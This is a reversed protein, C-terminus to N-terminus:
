AFRTPRYADLPRSPSNQLMLESILQATIPALLIGNRFHGTAFVLNEIEGRGLIPLHDTTDPRLGAWARRLRLNRIGPYLRMAGELISRLGEGTVAKEYGVYEATTGVLVRQPTRPVLYHIGSRLVFPLEAPADFELMQGRCPEMPLVLGLPAVLDRSWCGAALIVQGASFTSGREATPGYGAEVGEVRGARVILKTVPREGCITVGLRRCAAIVAATLRENDVWHDGPVFLGGRIEPSLGALRRAAETPSLQELEFGARKQSRHVEDLEKEGAEDRSVLMTGERRYGVSQGSLEEVEAVFQPYLDRSAVCLDFFADTEVAEGHPALMGAAATSAEAGPEGRDLVCVRLRAQALRLAVSCGILGGGIVLVDATHSSSASDPM